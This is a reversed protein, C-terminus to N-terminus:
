SKGLSEALADALVNGSRLVVPSVPRIWFARGDIEVETVDCRQVMRAMGLSWTNAPNGIMRGVSTFSTRAWALGGYNRLDGNITPLQQLQNALPFLVARM